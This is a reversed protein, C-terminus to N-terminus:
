ALPDLRTATNKLLVFLQKSADVIEIGIAINVDIAIDTIIM